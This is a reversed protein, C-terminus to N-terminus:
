FQFLETDSCFLILSNIEWTVCNASCFSLKENSQINTPGIIWNNMLKIRFNRFIIKYLTRALCFYAIILANLDSVHHLSQCHGFFATNWICRVCNIWRDRTASIWLDAYCNWSFYSDFHVCNYCNQLHWLIKEACWLRYQLWILYKKYSRNM